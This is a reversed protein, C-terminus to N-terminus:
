LEPNVFSQVKFKGLPISRLDRLVGESLGIPGEAYVRFEFQLDNM